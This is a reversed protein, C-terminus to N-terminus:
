PKLTSFTVDLLAERGFSRLGNLYGRFVAYFTYCLPILASVRFAQVLEPRHFFQAITPALLVYAGVLLGGVLSQLVLAARRVSAANAGDESVFKSVTYRTGDILVMNLIGVAGNVLGFDGYMQEPDEDSTYGGRVQSTLETSLKEWILTLTNGNSMRVFDHHLMPDRYEWVLNGDWDLEFLGASSGGFGQMGEVDKSPRMRALLNGNPLLYAHQIGESFYWRHCIRGEMDILTAHDGGTTTVLTYGLYCHQPAYYILGIPHHISWGM